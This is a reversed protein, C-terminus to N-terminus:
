GDTWCMGSSGCSPNCTFHGVSPCRCSDDVSVIGGASIVFERRGGTKPGFEFTLSPHVKHMEAALRNFTREQDREFDFLSIQNKEFWLWFDSEPTAQARTSFCTLMSLLAILLTRNFSMTWATRSLAETSGMGRLM